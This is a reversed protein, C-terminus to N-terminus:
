YCSLSRYPTIRMEIQMVRLYPFLALGNTVIDLGIWLLGPNAAPCARGHLRDIHRDRCRWSIKCCPRRVSNGSSLYRASYQDILNCFAWLFRTLIACTFWIM